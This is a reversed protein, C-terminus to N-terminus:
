AISEQKAPFPRLLAFRDQQFARPNIASYIPM